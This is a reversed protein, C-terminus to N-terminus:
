RRAAAAAPQEKTGIVLLQGTGSFPACIIKGDDGLAAGFYKGLGEAPCPIELLTPVAQSARVMLVTAANWPACYINGDEGSAAGSWRATHTKGANPPLPMRSITATEPDIVLVAGANYPSCYIPGEPFRVTQGADNTETRFRIAAGFWKANGRGAGAIFSLEHTSPDVALVSEANFPVFYVKGDAGTVAGSWKGRGRGAGPIFVLEQTEVIIM